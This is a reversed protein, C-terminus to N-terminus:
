ECATMTPVIQSHMPEGPRTPRLHARPEGSADAYVERSCRLCTAKAPEVRTFAGQKRAAKILAQRPNPRGM